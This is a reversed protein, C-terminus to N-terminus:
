THRNPGAETSDAGSEFLQDARSASQPAHERRSVGARAALPGQERRGAGREPGGGGCCPGARAQEGKSTCGAGAQGRRSAGHVRGARAQGAQTLPSISDLTSNEPLETASTTPRRKFTPPQLDFTSPRLDSTPPQLHLSPALVEAPGTFPSMSHPTSDEPLDTAGMTWPRDPSSPRRKVTSPPHNFASPQLSFASAQRDILRRRREGPSHSPLLFDSNFERAAGKCERDTAPQVTAEGLV